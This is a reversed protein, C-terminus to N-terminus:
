LLPSTESYPLILKQIFFPLYIIFEYNISSRFCAILPKIIKIFSMISNMLRGFGVLNMFNGDLRMKYDIVFNYFSQIIIDNGSTLGAHPNHLEFNRDVFAVEFNTLYPKLTVKDTVFNFNRIIIGLRYIEYLGYLIRKLVKRFNNDDLTSLNETFQCNNESNSNTSKTKDIKSKFNYEVIKYNDHVTTYKESKKPLLSSKLAILQKITNIQLMDDHHIVLKKNGYFVNENLPKYLETKDFNFIKETQTQAQTGMGMVEAPTPKPKIPFRIKGTKGKGKKLKLKEDIKDSSKDLKNLINIHKSKAPPRSMPVKERVSKKLVPVQPVAFPSAFPSSLSISPSRIPLSPLQSPSLASSCSVGDAIPKPIRSIKAVKISSNKESIKCKDFNLINKPLFDFIDPTNNSPSIPSNSNGIPSVSSLRSNINRSRIPTTNESSNYGEDLTRIRTRPQLM